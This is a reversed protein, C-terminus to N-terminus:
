TDKKIAAVLANNEKCLFVRLRFLSDQFDCARNRTREWLADLVKYADPKREADYLCQYLVIAFRCRWNHDAEDAEELLRHIREYVDVFARQWGARLMFRTVKYLTTSANYILFAYKARNGAEGVPAGKAEKGKPADGVPAILDLARSVFGVAERLSVLMEEGKESSSHASYAVVKARVLLARIFFQNTTQVREFFLGV